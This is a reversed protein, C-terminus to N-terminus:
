FHYFSASLSRITRRLIKRKTATWGALDALAFLTRLSADDDDDDDDDPVGM